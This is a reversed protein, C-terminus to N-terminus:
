FELSSRYQIEDSDQFHNLFQFSLYVNEELELSLMSPEIHFIVFNKQGSKLTHMGKEDFHMWNSGVNKVVPQFEFVSSAM